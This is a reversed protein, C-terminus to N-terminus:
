GNKGECKIFDFAGQKFKEFDSDLKAHTELIDNQTEEPLDRKFDDLEPPKPDDSVYPHSNLNNISQTQKKSELIDNTSIESVSNDSLEGKILFGLNSVINKADEEDGDFKKFSDLDLKSIKTSVTMNNLRKITNSVISLIEQNNTEKTISRTVYQLAQSYDSLRKNKLYQKVGDVTNVNNELLDHYILGTEVDNTDKDVLDNINIEPKKYSKIAIKLADKLGTSKSIKSFSVNLHKSFSQKSSSDDRINNINSLIESARNNQLEISKFRGINIIPQVDPTYGNDLQTTATRIAQEHSDPTIPSEPTVRNALTDPLKDFGFANRFGGGLLAGMGINQLVETFKPNYGYQKNSMYNFLTPVSTIAAGELAGGATRGIVNKAISSSILDSSKIADNVTEGVKFISSIGDIASLASGAIVYPAFGIMTGATEALFHPVEGGRSITETNQLKEQDLREKDFDNAANEATGQSVGNPFSLGERFYPSSKWQENSLQPTVAYNYASKLLDVPADIMGTVGSKLGAEVINTSLPFQVDSQQQTWDNPFDLGLPM